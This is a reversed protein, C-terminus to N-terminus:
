AAKRKNSNSAVLESLDLGVRAVVPKWALSDGEPQRYLRVSRYWPMGGTVGYRWAPKNPVMVWCPVGLAGALHIVSTCCSIVLDCSAVLRATEYYDQAKAEPMKKIGYGLKNVADIEADSDTYQLSVFEIDPVNLISEWWSLPISRARVRGQKLGGTWSIGVRFKSGRSLPEAKLYPIGPFSERSRRFWKGLSGLSVIYDLEHDKDWTIETRERTGYCPLGPFAKEFLTKLRQHCELIVSNKAMLDPLMSAFLIEDGIGQEGYVAITKGETGDWYPKDGINRRVRMKADFGWENEDWGPGFEGAELHCMAMNWHAMACQADIKLAKRAIRLGEQPTGNSTFLASYNAFSSATPNHDCAKRFNEHAKKYQGTYKYAIALNCLKDSQPDLAVSRHLLSIALGYRESQLYLTGLTALLGANDPNQTLLKDYMAEAKAFNGALHFANASELISVGVDPANADDNMDM